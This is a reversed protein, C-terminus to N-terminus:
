QGEQEGPSPRSTELRSDVGLEVALDDLDAIVAAPVRVGDRRAAALAAEEIEGPLLVREHGMGPPLTAVSAVFREVSQSFDGVEAWARPDMVLFLHSVRQTRNWDDYMDGIENGFAGGVLAGCVLDVMMALGSGKPGAFPVMSGRLAAQPDRTPRGEEDVAWGDPIEGGTQDAVIIKGRATASTAMDVVIPHDGSRPVAMSIPNTGVARTKGGYYTMTPPATSFAITVYGSEALSRTFYALTGCHNSNRVGVMAVGHEAATRRGAEAGAAAGVQGAANRADVRVISGATTVRPRALPDVLGAKVRAAYIRLRTLGHSGIGRAEADVLSGAVLEADGPSLGVSQLVAAAHAHLRDMGYLPHRSTATLANALTM